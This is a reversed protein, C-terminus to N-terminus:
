TISWSNHGNERFEKGKRMIGSKDGVIGCEIHAEKIDLPLAAPSIDFEGCAEARHKETFAEEWSGGTVIEVGETFVELNGKGGVTVPCECIDKESCLYEELEQIVPM